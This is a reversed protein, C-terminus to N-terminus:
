SAGGRLWVGNRLAQFIITAKPPKMKRRFVVFPDAEIHRATWNYMDGATKIPVRYRRPLFGYGRTAEAQWVKYRQLQRSLFDVFEEPRARATTERLDPLATEDMPLYTRGLDNDEAIDRIFNIFQMARGQMAAAQLSEESLDLIRAMFLGIVEASGYIYELTEELSHYTSKTLDLSMSHLFAETWRPDFNKRRSLEVFSDIIVDDAFAGEAAEKYRSVFQRFEDAQQPVADVFNDAVRVFGYLVFVDRRVDPPFFLSSNFYTKSGNRFTDYHVKDIKMCRDARPPKRSFYM